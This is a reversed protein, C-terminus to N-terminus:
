SVHGLHGPMERKLRREAVERHVQGVEQWGQLMLCFGVLVPQGHLINRLSFFSVSNVFGSDLPSFCTGGFSCYCGLAPTEELYFLAGKGPCFLLFSM